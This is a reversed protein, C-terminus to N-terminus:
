RRDTGASGSPQKLDLHTLYERQRTIEHTATKIRYVGDIGPRVGSVICTAESQAQPDGDIVITGGGKDRDAESSNSSGQNNANDKNAHKRRHNLKASISGGNDTSNRAQVTENNWQAKSLDYWRVDFSQYEPRSQIPSLSWSIINAGYTANISALMAGTTSQGSSRAAFVAQTGSVKFTAGIETAIREGWQLFHENGIFWYPRQINALSPDVKITLRAVQGFDSAADKFSANDKHKNQSQKAKGRMDASKATLTIYRGQTRSGTSTVEDVVGQFQVLAGTDNRGIGASITAGVRPLVIQGGEDDLVAQLTDAKGGDSDTIRMSELFPSFRDTVSVGDVALYFVGLSM